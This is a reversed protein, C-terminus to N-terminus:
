AVPIVGHLERKNSIRTTSCAEIRGQFLPFRHIHLNTNFDSKAEVLYTNGQLHTARARIMIPAVLLALKGVDPSRECRHTADFSVAETPM